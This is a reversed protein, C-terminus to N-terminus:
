INFAGTDLWYEETIGLTQLSFAVQRRMSRGNADEVRAIVIPEKIADRVLREDNAANAIPRKELTVKFPLQGKGTEVFYLKYLPTATWRDVNLQRSGIFTDTMMSIECENDKMEPYFYLDEDKVQVANALRGVYNDVPKMSFRDSSIYLGSVRQSGTLAILMAGVAVSSKPDGVTNQASRFPYWSGTHYDSIPIVRNPAIACSSKLLDKIKDNKTTRGTLLICDVNLHSIVESINEFVYKFVNEILRNLESKKVEFKFDLLKWNEILKGFPIEIYDCVANLNKSFDYDKVSVTKAESNGFDLNLIELALPAFFKISFQRQSHRQSTTKGAVSRGFLNTILTKLENANENKSVASKLKGIILNEIISALLDDGARRFGERFEQVPYLEVQEQQYYTTVMIDTTGGGIDICAIKLSNVDQPDGEAELRPHSRKKGYVNLFESMKGDFKHIIESYLYMVQTCSAEDWEIIVEPESKPTVQGMKEMRDWLLRIAGKVKSKVIAQEQRPTATPLTIIVRKM